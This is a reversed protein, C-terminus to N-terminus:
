YTDRPPQPPNWESRVKNETFPESDHPPNGVVMDEGTPTFDNTGNASHNAHMLEHALGIAPPRTHWPQSGDGIQTRDPNYSVNSGTGPGPTGDPGPVARTGDIPSAGNGGSTKSITVPQAANDISKLLGAGTPTSNIQALDGLVKSQFVSDGKVVISRGVKLTGDPMKYVPMDGIMGVLVGGPPGGGGAGGGGASAGGMGAEGIVVTPLGQVLIGGHVTMDGLRAAFLGGITVTPSGKAIADPPGVCTCMDTVRAAPQMGILVTPCGPPLVPGGVHPKPGPDIMPCTHMDGVRSAPPM